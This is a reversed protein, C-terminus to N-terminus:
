SGMLLFPKIAGMCARMFDTRMPLQPAPPFQKEVGTACGASWVSLRAALAHAGRASVDHQCMLLRPQLFLRSVM